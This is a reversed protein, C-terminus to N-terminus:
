AAPATRHRNWVRGFALYALGGLPIQFLCAFAWLWRPLFRVREAKALDTLLFVEWGGILAVAAIVGLILVVDALMLGVVMEHM